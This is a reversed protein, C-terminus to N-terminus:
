VGRNQTHTHTHTQLVFCFFLNVSLFLNFFFQGIEKSIGDIVIPIKKGQKDFNFQESMARSPSLTLAGIKQEVYATAFLSIHSCEVTEMNDDGRLEVRFKKISKPKFQPIENTEIM